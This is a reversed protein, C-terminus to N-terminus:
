FLTQHIPCFHASRGNVVIRQMTGKCDTKGCIEGTRQYANHEGSFEGPRGDVNRYDSTSDGKFKIGDKLSSRIENFINQLNKAPINKVLSLPHVGARWLIEDSYINGIGAVTSPDMLATKIPTNGRRAIRKSFTESTFESSFPEPGINKLDASTELADTPILTVKAFKRVDSLVLHIGNKFTVVFHIFRNFPDWLPSSLKTKPTWIEQQWKEPINKQKEQTYAGVMLHGTMKMHVLLTQNNSLNILVNKGRRTVSSVKAGVIEKKLKKFFAPNKINDKGAHHPSNYDTWVDTIIFGVIAKQLGTATTHVEPLEPM